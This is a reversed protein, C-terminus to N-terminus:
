NGAYVYLLGVGCNSRGGAPGLSDVYSELMLGRDYEIGTLNGKRGQVLLGYAM